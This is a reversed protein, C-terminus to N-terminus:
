KGKPLGDHRRSFSHKILNFRMEGFETVETVNHLSNPSAFYLCCLEFRIASCSPHPRKTSFIIDSPPNLGWCLAPIEALDWILRRGSEPVLVHELHAGGFILRGIIVLKIRCVSFFSNLRHPGLLVILYSADRRCIFGKILGNLKEEALVSSVHGADAWCLPVCLWRHRM